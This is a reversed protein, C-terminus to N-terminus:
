YVLVLSPYFMDNFQVLIYDVSRPLPSSNNFQLIREKGVHEDTTHLCVSMKSYFWVRLKGNTSVTSLPLVKFASVADYLNVTRLQM